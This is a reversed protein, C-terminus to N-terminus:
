RGAKAIQWVRQRTLGVAAAIKATSVDDELVAKRILADRRAVRAQIDDAARALQTLKVAETQTRTM